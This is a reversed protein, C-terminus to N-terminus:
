SRQIGVVFIDEFETVSYYGALEPNSKIFSNLLSRIADKSLGLKEPVVQVEDELLSIYSSDGSQATIKSVLYDKIKRALEGDGACNIVLSSM